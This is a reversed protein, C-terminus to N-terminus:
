YQKINENVDSVYIKLDKQETKLYLEIDRKIGVTEILKLAEEPNVWRYESHERSLKIKTTNTECLFTFGYIENDATKEQGRHIHWVRMLKNIKLDTIGTEEIVERKLGEELEEFQDIRGYMLEWKNKLHDTDERKLVLVKNTNSHKIIAGAAVMFSGIHANKKAMKEGNMGILQKKM